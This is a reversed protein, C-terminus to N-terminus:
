ACSAAYKVGCCCCAPLFDQGVFQANNEVFRPGFGDCYRVLVVFAVGIVVPCFEGVRDGASQDITLELQSGVGADCDRRERQIFDVISPQNVNM